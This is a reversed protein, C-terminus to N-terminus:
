VGADPRAAKVADALRALTGRQAFFQVLARAKAKKTDGGLNDWDVGLRFALDQLDDSSFADGSLMDYLKIGLDGESGAFDAPNMAQVSATLRVRTTAALVDEDAQYANVVLSINGARRPTVQFYQVLSDRGKELLFTYREPEVHCDKAELEVRYKVIDTTTARFIAGETSTLKVLDDVKLPPSALQRIAVAVDFSQDVIASEPTAVDLRISERELMGLSEAPPAAGTTVVFSGHPKEAAPAASEGVSPLDLIGKWVEPESPPAPPLAEAPPQAAEGRSQLETESVGIRALVAAGSDLMPASVEDAASDAAKDLLVGLPADMLMEALARNPATQLLGILERWARGTMTVVRGDPSQVVVRADDAAQISMLDRLTARADLRVMGPDPESLKSM